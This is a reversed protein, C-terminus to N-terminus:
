CGDPGCSEGSVFTALPARQKWARDLRETAAVATMQDHMSQAQERTTGYKRALHDVRDGERERPAGPDLEFSRWTVTVEDSHEFEALAAEFRRKGIYCWPCAIDSWIEVSLM